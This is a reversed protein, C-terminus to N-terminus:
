TRYIGWAIEWSLRQQLSIEDVSGLQLSLFDLDPKQMGGKLLGSEISSYGAKAFVSDLNAGLEVSFGERRFSRLLKDSLGCDPEEQIASYNYEGFVVYYGGSPLFGAARRLFSVPDTLGALFFSSIYADSPPLYDMIDAQVFSVGDIAPISNRAISLISGSKDIGTCLADTIASIEASLLGTGCGPETVASFRRFPVVSCIHRRMPALENFQRRYVESLIEDRRRNDTM